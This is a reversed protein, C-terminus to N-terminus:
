LLRQAQITRNIDRRTIPDISSFRFDILLEFGKFLGPRVKQISATIGATDMDFFDFELLYEKDYLLAPPATAAIDLFRRDNCIVSLGDPNINIVVGRFHHNVGREFFLMPLLYDGRNRKQM